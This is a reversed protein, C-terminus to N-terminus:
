IERSSCSIGSNGKLDISGTPLRPLQPQTLLSIAKLPPLDVPECYYRRMHTHDLLYLYAVPLDRASGRPVQVSNLHVTVSCVAALVKCCVVPHARRVLRLLQQRRAGCIGLLVCYLILHDHRCGVDLACYGIHISHHIEVSCVSLGSFQYQFASITKLTAPSFLECLIHFVYSLHCSHKKRKAVLAMPDFPTNIIDFHDTDSVSLFGKKVALSLQNARM